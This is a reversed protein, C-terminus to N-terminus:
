VVGAWWGIAGLVLAAVVAATGARPWPDRDIWGSLLGFALAGALGYAIAQPWPSFPPAHARLIAKLERMVFPLLAMLVALAAARPVGGRATSPRTSTLDEM